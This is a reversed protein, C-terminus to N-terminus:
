YPLDGATGPTVTTANVRCWTTSAPPVEAETQGDHPRQRTAETVSILNRVVAGRALSLSDLFRQARQPSDM